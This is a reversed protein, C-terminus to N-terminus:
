CDNVIFNESRNFIKFDEKYHESLHSSGFGVLIETNCGSCVYLDGSWVKYPKWMEPAILGPPSSNGKPMNETLNVGIKKPKFFRQCKVCVPKPM